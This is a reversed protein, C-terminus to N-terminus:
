GAVGFLRMLSKDRMELVGGRRTSHQQTSRHPFQIAVLGSQSAPSGPSPTFLVRSQVGGGVSQRIFPTTDPESESLSHSSLSMRHDGDAESRPSSRSIWLDESEEVEIDAGSMEEGRGM